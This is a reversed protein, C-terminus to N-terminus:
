DDYPDDVRASGPALDSAAVIRATPDILAFRAGCPDAVRAMRGWESDYPDIDVRGGLELVRDVTADTGTQPEVAFHLMWHARTKPAVWDENMQLRGLIMQGGRSWTTYDLDVGDGIQEQRYGFLNAFIKDALAGHWTNLEAWFLAGPKATRFTWPTTPQWFGIVGGTPDAGILVKGHGSVDVPGHLVQGGWQVFVAATHTISASTLYVTWTVLQGVRVPVGALGAVPWGACLATTNRGRGPSIQYTWGFLGAYFDRSGAPDTSSVDIWCVSGPIFSASKGLWSTRMKTKRM